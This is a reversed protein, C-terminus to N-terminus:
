LTKVESLLNRLKKFTQEDLKEVFIVRKEEVYMRVFDGESIGSGTYIFTRSGKETAITLYKDSVEVVRGYLVGEKSVDEFSEFM